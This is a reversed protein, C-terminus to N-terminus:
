NVPRLFITQAGVGWLAVLISVIIGALIVGGAIAFFAKKHSLGLIWAGLTGTWAGTAPLPIAVFLLLGWYGYKEVKTHVKARARNVVRDFFRKYQPIKYLLRHLSELFLFAIIPICINAAISIIAAIPISFGKYVAYPIAGRLESVPLISLVITRILDANIVPM